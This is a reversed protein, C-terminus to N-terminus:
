ITRLAKRLQHAISLFKLSKRVKDEKDQARKLTDGIVQSLPKDSDIFSFSMDLFPISPFVDKLEFNIYRKLLTKKPIKSGTVSFRSQLFEATHSKDYAKIYQDANKQFEQLFHIASEKNDLTKAVNEMESVFNKMDTPTKHITNQLNTFLDDVAMKQKAVREPNEQLEKQKDLFEEAKQVRALFIRLRDSDITKYSDHQIQANYMKDLINSSDNTDLIKNKDQLQEFNRLFLATATRGMGPLDNKEINNKNWVQDYAVLLRRADNVYTRMEELEKL